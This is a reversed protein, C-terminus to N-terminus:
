LREQKEDSFHKSAQRATAIQTTIEGSWIEMGKKKTLENIEMVKKGLLGGVLYSVDPVTLESGDGRKSTIKVYTVFTCKMYKEYNETM